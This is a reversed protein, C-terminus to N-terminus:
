SEINSKDLTPPISLDSSYVEVWAGYGDSSGGVKRSGGVGDMYSVMVVM